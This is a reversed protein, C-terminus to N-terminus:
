VVVGERQAWYHLFGRYNARERFEKSDVVIVDVPERLVSVLKENLQSYFRWFDSENLKEKTVILIDWDSDEKFDGRARSGFLIIKEVEVGHKKAAELIVEKITKLEEMKVQKQNPLKFLKPATAQSLERMSM